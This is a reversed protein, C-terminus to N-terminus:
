EELIDQERAYAEALGRAREKDDKGLRGEVVENQLYDKLAKIWRGPGLGFQEMLDNGSLPSELKEVSDEARIEELKSNAIPISVFDDWDRPGSKGQAENWLYRAVEDATRQAPRSFIRALIFMLIVLPSFVLFILVNLVSFVTWRQNPDYITWWFWPTALRFVLREEDAM